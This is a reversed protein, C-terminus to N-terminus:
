TKLFSRVLSTLRDEILPRLLLAGIDASGFPTEPTPEPYAIVARNPSGPSGSYLVWAASVDGTDGRRIGDRYAHMQNIDMVLPLNAPEDDLEGTEMLHETYSKYKADLLLLRGASELTMDPRMRHSRSRWGDRDPKARFERNYTLTATRGARDQFTLRSARGRVLSFTLGARSLAFDEASVTRFGAERLAAAIRFLCWFEYLLWTERAPLSFLPNSWDFVFGQRYRRYTDHILRYAGHTRVALPLPPIPAATDIRLNQWPSRRLTRRVSHRLQLAEAMVDSAGVVDALDAIDKLDRSFRALIAKVMRNPPTDVTPLAIREAVRRPLRGNLRAALPSSEPPAPAFEGSRLAHLLDKPAIRRAREIPVSRTASILGGPPEAEIRRLAGAIRPWMAALFGLRERPCPGEVPGQAEGIDLDHFEQQPYLDRGIALAVIAIDSLMRRREMEGLLRKTGFWASRATDSQMM